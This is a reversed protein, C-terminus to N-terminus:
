YHDRNKALSDSTLQLQKQLAETSVQYGQSRATVLALVPLAQHHCSFCERHATYEAASKELLSISKAVAARMQEPGPGVRHITWSGALTYLALALAAVAEPM